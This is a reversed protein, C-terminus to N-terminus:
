VSAELNVTVEHRNSQVYRSSLGEGVRKAAYATGNWDTYTFAKGPGITAFFTRLATLDATPMNAFKLSASRYAGRNDSYIDAGVRRTPQHLRVIAMDESGYNPNHTPTWSAAPSACTFTILQM